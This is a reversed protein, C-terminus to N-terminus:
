GHYVNCFQQSNSITAHAAITNNGNKKTVMLLFFFFFFPIVTRYCGGDKALLSRSFFYFGCTRIKRKEKRVLMDDQCSPM